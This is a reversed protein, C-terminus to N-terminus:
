SGYLWLSWSLLKTNDGFQIKPISSIFMFSIFAPVGCNNSDKTQVKNDIVDSKKYESIKINDCLYNLLKFLPCLGIRSLFLMIAYQSSTMGVSNLGKRYPAANYPISDFLELCIAFSRHFNAWCACNNM